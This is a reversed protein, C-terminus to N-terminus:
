GNKKHYSESKHKKHCEKCLLTLNDETEKGGFSVSIKHHLDMDKLEFEKNCESCLKNQKNYFYIRFTELTNACSEIFFNLYFKDQMIKHFLDMDYCIFGGRRTFTWRYKPNSNYLWCKTCFGHPDVENNECSCFIKNNRSILVNDWFDKFKSNKCEKTETDINNIIFQYWEPNILRHNLKNM